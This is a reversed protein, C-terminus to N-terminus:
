LRGMLASKREVDHQLVLKSQAHLKSRVLGKNLDNGFNKIKFHPTLRTGIFLLADIVIEPTECSRHMPFLNSAMAELLTRRFKVPLCNKHFTSAGLYFNSKSIPVLNDYRDPHAGFPHAGQQQVECEVAHNLPDQDPEGQPAVLSPITHQGLM